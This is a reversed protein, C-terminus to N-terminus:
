KTPQYFSTESTRVNVDARNSLVKETPYGLRELTKGAYRNILDVQSTSLKTRWGGAAGSRVFRSEEQTGKYLNQSHDEKERMKNLSNNEVARRIKESDAAVGLFGLIKELNGCADQRLDEFRVVLLNGNSALPSDLWSQAHDQWSGCIGLRAKGQLFRGLYDDFNLEYHGRLVREKEYAFSSFVLDRVDRVLFLARRYERRYPEHTKILRGGTPLLRPVRRHLGVDPITQSVNDFGASTGTLIEHLLFRLWTNGSRPFSVVFVDGANLGRHRRWVVVSRLGTQRIKFRARKWELRLKLSM